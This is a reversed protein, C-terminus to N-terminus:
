LTVHPAIDALTADGIGSVELLEDVSAFAGHETRWALIATATVPGVGPLTELATQDATNINVLALPADGPSGSSTPGTTGPPATLSGAAVGTPPGVGVLLQEGDVLLRALNLAQLDAQRRAGGAAELADVVRSGAPLVAIGPRRVKGEVDVVVQAPAGSGPATSGPSTSGPSTSGTTATGPSAAPGGPTGRTTRAPETGGQDTARAPTVVEAGGSAHPPAVEGAGVPGGTARTYTWGAFALGLVLLAAVVLLHRGGLRLGAVTAPLRDGAWSAARQGGPLPRRVHRGLREEEAPDNEDPSSGRGPVDADDDEEAVADDRPSPPHGGLEAV